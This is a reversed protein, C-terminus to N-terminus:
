KTVETQVISTINGARDRTIDSTTERPPLHISIEPAAADEAAASERTLGMRKLAEDLTSKTGAALWNAQTMTSGRVEFRQVGASAVILGMDVASRVLGSYHGGHIFATRLSPRPPALEFSVTLETPRTEVVCTVDAPKFHEIWGCVSAFGDQEGSLRYIGEAIRAAQMGVEISFALAEDLPLGLPGSLVYRKTTRYSYASM